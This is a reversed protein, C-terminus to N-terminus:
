KVKPTELIKCARLLAAQKKAHKRRELRNANNNNALENKLMLSEDLIVDEPV